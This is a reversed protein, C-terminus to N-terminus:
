VKWHHHNKMVEILNNELCKCKNTMVYVEYMLLYDTHDDTVNHTM